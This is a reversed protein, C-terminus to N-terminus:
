SLTTNPSGEEIAQLFFSTDQHIHMLILSGHISNVVRKAVLTPNVKQAFINEFALIMEQSYQQIIPIFQDKEPSYATELSILSMLCGGHSGTFIRQLKKSLETWKEEANLNEDYAIPFVRESFYNHVSKLVEVMLEEKGKKFYYYFHSKPIDCAYALDQISTNYYGKKRFVQMAKVIIEDKSTKQAPM